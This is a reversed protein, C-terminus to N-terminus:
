NNVNALIVKLASNLRKMEEQSGKMDPHYIKCLQKYRVKIQKEDPVQDPHYGFVACALQHYNDKEANQQIKQYRKLEKYLTDLQRKQKKITAVNDAMQQQSLKESQLSRQKKNKFIRYVTLAVVMALIVLAIFLYNPQIPHKSLATASAPVSNGTDSLTTQKEAVTDLQEMASLQKARQQNFRQELIRAYAQEAQPLKDAAVHFWIEAMDLPTGPQFGEEYLQGLKFQATANGTVALKTLWYMAQGTDDNSLYHQSLALIAQPYQNEASQQLWYFAEQPDKDTGAQYALALQYQAAPSNQKAQQLLESISEAHASFLASFTLICVFLRYM